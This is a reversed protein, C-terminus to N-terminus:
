TKITQLGKVFDKLEGSEECLSAEFTIWDLRENDLLVKKKVLVLICITVLHMLFSCNKCKINSKLYIM